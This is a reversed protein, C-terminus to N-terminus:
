KGEGPQGLVAGAFHALADEQSGLRRRRGVAAGRRWPFARRHPPVPVPLPPRPPALFESHKRRKEGFIPPINQAFAEPWGGTSLAWKKFFFAM